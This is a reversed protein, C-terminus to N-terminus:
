RSRNMERERKRDIEKQRKEDEKQERLKRDVRIDRRLRLEKLSM